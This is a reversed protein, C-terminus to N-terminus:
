NLREGLAGLDRSHHMVAHVFIVDGRQSYFVTYPFRHLKARRLGHRHFPYRGPKEAIRKLLSKLGSLFASGVAFDQGDYWSVANDIDAQAQPEIVLRM